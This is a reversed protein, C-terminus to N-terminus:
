PKPPPNGSVYRRHTATLIKATQVSGEKFPETPCVRFDAYLDVSSAAVPNNQRESPPVGEDIWKMVRDWTTKDPQYEHHTGIHWIRLQGDGAFFHARGHITTCNQAVCFSCGALFSLCLLALLRM